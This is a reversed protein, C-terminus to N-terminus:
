HGPEQFNKVVNKLKQETSGIKAETKRVFEEFVAKCTTSYELTKKEILKVDATANELDRRKNHLELELSKLDPMKQLISDIKKRLQENSVTLDETTERMMRKFDECEKEKAQLAKSISGVEDNEKSQVEQINIAQDRLSDLELTMQTRLHKLEAKLEKLTEDVAELEEAAGLQLINVDIRAKKLQPIDLTNMAVLKNYELLAANLKQRAGVVKLDESYVIKSYEELCGNQYAIERRLDAMEQIMVEKKAVSVCQQEIEAKTQDIEQQLERIEKEQAERASKIDGIKDNLDALYRNNGLKHDKLKKFDSELVQKQSKLEELEALEALNEPSNLEEDLAKVEDQLADFEEVSVGEHEKINELLQEELRAIEIESNPKTQFANFSKMLFPLFLKFDIAPESGDTPQDEVFDQYFAPMPEFDEYLENVEVLWQLLGLVHPWAHPTNVTQLWSKEVKGRYGFRKTFTPLRTIYDSQDVMATEDFVQLLINVLDIFMATTMPKISTRKELVLPGQPHRLFFQTVQRQAEQQFTKDSLPRMDRRSSKAGISSLRSQDISGHSPRLTSGPPLVGGKSSFLPTMPVVPTRVNVQSRSRNLKHDTSVKSASRSSFRSDRDVSSSRGHGGISPKPIFSRKQEGKRITENGGRAEVESLRVPRMSSSRRGLSSKPM